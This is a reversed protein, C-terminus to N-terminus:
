VTRHASGAGIQPRGLQFPSSGPAGAGSVAGTQDGDGSRGGLIDEGLKLLRRTSESIDDQLASGTLHAILGILVLPQASIVDQLAASVSIGSDGKLELAQARCDDQLAASEKVRRGKGYGPHVDRWARVRSVNATGRFYDHNEPHSLWLRQSAAKSAKRCDPKSCYKQHRVNRADAQFFAKCCPCKRRNAPKM